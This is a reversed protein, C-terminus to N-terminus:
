RKEKLYNYYDLEFQDIKRSQESFNRVKIFNKSILPDQEKFGSYLERFM